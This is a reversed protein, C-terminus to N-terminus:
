LTKYVDQYYQLSRLFPIITEEIALIIQFIDSIRGKLVLLM